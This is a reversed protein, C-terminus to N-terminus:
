ISQAHPSASAQTDNADARGHSRPCPCSREPAWVKLWSTGSQSNDLRYLLGPPSATPESRGGKQLLPPLPNQRPPQVKHSRSPFCPPQPPPSPIPHSPIPQSSTSPSPNATSLTRHQFGFKNIRFVAAALYSPVARALAQFSDLRPVQVLM